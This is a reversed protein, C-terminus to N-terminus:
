LFAMVEQYHANYVVPLWAKVAKTSKPKSRYREKRPRGRKKHDQHPPLRKHEDPGEFNGVFINPQRVAKNSYMDRYVSARAWKPWFRAITAEAKRRSSLLGRKYFVPVCHRCPLNNISVYECCKVSAIGDSFDVEYATADPTDSRQVYFIDATGGATVTHGTRKAIEKQLM